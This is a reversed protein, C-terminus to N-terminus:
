LIALAALYKGWKDETSRRAFIRASHFLIMACDFATDPQRHAVARAASGPSRQRSDFRFIVAAINALQEARVCGAVVPEHPEQAADFVEPAESRAVFFM